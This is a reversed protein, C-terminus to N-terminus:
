EIIYQFFRCNVSEVSLSDHKLGLCGCWYLCFAYRTQTLFDQLIWHMMSFTKMVLKRRTNIYTSACFKVQQHENMSVHPITTPNNQRFNVYRQVIKAIHYLWVKHDTPCVYWQLTVILDCQKEEIFFIISMFHIYTVMGNMCREDIQKPQVSTLLTSLVSRNRPMELYFHWIM